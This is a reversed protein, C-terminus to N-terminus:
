GDRGWPPRQARAYPWRKAGAMSKEPRGQPCSTLMFSLRFSFADAAGLTQCARALIKDAAPDLAPPLAPASSQALAVTAWATLVVPVVWAVNFLVKRLNM